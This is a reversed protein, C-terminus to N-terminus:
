VQPQGAKGDLTHCMMYDDPRDVIQGTRPGGRGAALRLARIHVKNGTKREWHLHTKEEVTKM